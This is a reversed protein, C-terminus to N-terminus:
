HDLLTLRRLTQVKSIRLSYIRLKPDSAPSHSPPGFFQPAIDTIYFTYYAIGSHKIYWPPSLIWSDVKSSKNYLALEEFLIILISFM